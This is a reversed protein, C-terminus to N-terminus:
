ENYNLIKLEINNNIKIVDVTENTFVFKYNNYTMTEKNYFSLSEILTKYKIPVICIVIEVNNKINKTIVNLTTILTQNWDIQFIFDNDKNYKSPIKYDWTFNNKM